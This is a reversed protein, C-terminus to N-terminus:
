KMGYWGIGEAKWGAKVLADNEGKSTTYNHTGTVANPNYQRYVAVGKADDSYFAIGEDKWGVKVLYNKEGKSTTYHHEGANPNYVRYVPTKSTKPATWGIGEYSWGVKVLNNKEGASTTYFHEGNNPNYLRYVPTSALKAIKETRTAKCVTCTYTRVGEKKSTAPTTVKGADWKHGKAPVTKQAELVENCVSCHKGETLGSKTCTANVAKDVVVTHGKAAVEKQEVLVENCVSCHKGETLGTETCTPEVAADVVETHDKKAVETQSVLVENCVSCHKGETLGTSTCTPEVAADVVETHDKKAVETQSVLVENCVSCHKGETLGTSTCTPEVAADVVETHGKAPVEKQETLVEGCVSCYTGETLGTETCTAEVAPKTEVKHGCTVTLVEPYLLCYVEEDANSLATLYYEGTKEPATILANGNEDTVTNRIPMVTGTTMDVWGLKADEVPSAAAKMADPDAYMYGMMYMTGKVTVNFESGAPVSEPLTLYTVQDSWTSEDQYVFFDLVDGDAAPTNNLFTGNYGGGYPSATGDNPYGKNVMFGSSMTEIAFIKSAWGSSSVDIFEGATEPTFADAFVLEHAKVMADLATVQGPLGDTLGYSEALNSAVEVEAPAALYAGDTQACVTVTATTVPIPAEEVTLAYPNLMCYVEEDEEDTNSVATLYYTGPEAPATIVAKGDEGTLVNAIPTVAGSEKDMWGLKAGEVASAAAQMAAPDAYMYGMMLSTGKVTVEFESGANVKEPLTLYSLVDEYYDSQYIFFDVADGSVVPTSTILTGNYGGYSSETGDNAIGKNVLFGCDYTDMGFLKSIFGSSSVSIFEGATEPTFADAFILEHEKVLADLATVQGPLSDTLGYSEALDSSVEAEAPAALYSGDTQAGLTLNASTVAAQTGEVVVKAYAPGSVVSGSEGTKGDAWLYYTGPTDFTISATGNSTEVAGPEEEDYLTTSYLITNNDAEFTTAYTANWDTKSRVYKVQLPTGAQAQFEHVPQGDAGAFYHYGAKEDSYFSWDGYMTVDYFDGDQLVIHDSTAGWAEAELPYAGNVAYTLNEDHGWFGNKLYTSGSSGEVELAQSGGSYYHNLVYLFAQLLTTEYQGDDDADYLFSSYEYEELDIEQAVADISVPIYAMVEGAHAETNARVFQADDSISIYVTGGNSVTDQAYAPVYGGFCTTMATALTLLGATLKKGTKRM